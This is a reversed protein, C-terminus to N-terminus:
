GDMGELMSELKVITKWNRVTAAVGLKQSQMALKSKHFSIHLHLYIEKDNIIFDELENKYKNLRILAEQLPEKELLVLHVSEGEQLTDVPYPCNHILNEFVCAARLIVTVQFGFRKEIEHEIKEQLQGTKMDSTFIVNGSQIYTSVNQLGLEEFMVKLDKMKIVNHGGVNIGRLLAIYVTM